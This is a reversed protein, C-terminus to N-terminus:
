IYAAARLPAFEYCVVLFDDLLLTDDTTVWCVTLELDVFDFERTDIQMQSLLEVIDAVSLVDIGRRQLLAEYARAASAVFADPLSRVAVLRDEAETRTLRRLGRPLQPRLM